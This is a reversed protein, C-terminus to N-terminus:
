EANITEMSEIKQYHIIAASIYNIAGYLEHIARDSELRPTEYIKKVAQGLTFGCPSDELRRDIECIQQDEFAEGTAHREFGKGTQAQDMAGQFVDALSEYGKNIKM